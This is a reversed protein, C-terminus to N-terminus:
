NDYKNKPLGDEIKCYTVLAVEYNTHIREPIIRKYWLKNQIKM